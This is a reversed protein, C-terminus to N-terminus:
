EHGFKGENTSTARIHGIRSRHEEALPVSRRLVAVTLGERPLSKEAQYPV